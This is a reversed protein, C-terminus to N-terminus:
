KKVIKQSVQQGNVEGTIVYVGKPLSSVNLKTGNAVSATKVLQGNSNIIQVNKSDASFLIESGIVTNSVLAYKSQAVEGIGLESKKIVSFDDFSVSGGNYARVGLQLIPFGAPTTFEVTHSTWVNSSALWDNNNRLPDESSPGSGNLNTFNGNGDAFSSWIRSDSGDGSSKYWFTLVYVEGPVTTVNQYFGTTATANYTAFWDGSHANASNEVLTPETYSNTWGAAWPAMEGAEFGPNQVLNTQGIAFSAVLVSILSYFNRM